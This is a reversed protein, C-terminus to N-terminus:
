AGARTVPDAAVHQQAISHIAQTRYPGAAASPLAASLVALTGCLRPREPPARPGRRADDAGRRHAPAVARRSRGLVPPARPRLLGVFGSGAQDIPRIPRIPRLDVPSHAVTQGQMVRTVDPGAAAAGPAAGAGGAGTGVRRATARSEHVEHNPRLAAPVAARPPPESPGGVLRWRGAAGGGRRRRRRLLPRGARRGEVARYCDASGCSRRGPGGAAGRCFERTRIRDVGPLSRRSPGEGLSECSSSSSAACRWTRSGCCSSSSRCGTPRAEGSRAGRPHYLAFGWLEDEAHQRVSVAKPRARRGEAEAARAM